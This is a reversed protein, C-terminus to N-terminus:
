KSFKCTVILSYDYLNITDPYEMFHEPSYLRLNVTDSAYVFLIVEENNDLDITTTIGNTDAWFEGERRQYNELEFAMSSSRSSHSISMKMSADDIIVAIMGESNSSDSIDHILPLYSNVLEGNKYEDCRVSVSQYEESTNFTFFGAKSGSLILEALRHEDAHLEYNSIASRGELTEIAEDQSGETVLVADGSIESDDWYLLISQVVIVAIVTICIALAMALIM